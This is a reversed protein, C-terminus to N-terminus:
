LSFLIFKGFDSVIIILSLNLILCIIFPSGNSKWMMNLCPKLQNVNAEVSGGFFEIFGAYINNCVIAQSNFGVQLQRNPKKQHTRSFSMISMSDCHSNDFTNVQISFIVCQFLDGAAGPASPHFQKQGELLFYLFIFLLLLILVVWEVRIGNLKCFFFAEILLDLSLDLLFLLCLFNSMPHKVGDLAFLGANTHTENGAVFVAVVVMAISGLIAM